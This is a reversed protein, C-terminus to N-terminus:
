DCDKAHLDTDRPFVRETCRPCRPGLLWNLFRSM